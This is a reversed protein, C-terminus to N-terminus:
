ASAQLTASHRRFLSGGSHRHQIPLNVDRRRWYAGSVASRRPDETTCRGDPSIRPLAERERLRRLPVADAANSHAAARRMSTALAIGGGSYGNVAYAGAALVHLRPLTDSSVGVVGPVDDGVRVTHDISFGALAAASVM